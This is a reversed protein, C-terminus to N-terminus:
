QVTVTLQSSHTLSGSVATITLSYTGATAPVTTGTTGGGGTGGSGSSGSGPASVTNSGCGSATLAGVSLLVLFLAGWRRRRPLSFMLMAALATGSGAVYWPSTRPAQPAHANSATTTQSAKITLVTTTSNGSTLTVPSVTFSPTATMGDHNAISFSVTGSFNNLSQLTLTIGSTTGGSAVSLTNSCMSPAATLSFDPSTTSVFDVSYLPGNAYDYTNTAPGLLTGKSGAYTADGSYSAGITHGGSSIATAGSVSNLALNSIIGNAPLTIPSGFPKNDILIQVTGTPAKTSTSSGSAVTINLAVAGSSVGCLTSSSTVSTTSIVASAAGAISSTPVAVSWNNVMNAADISGLGTALDYGAGANYGIAGGSPCDLTGQVCYVSNNGATIDHYVNAINALGYLVPGVNGLGASGTNLKQEVRALIGAFIPAVVSTGGFANPQGSSTLFGNSCPLDTNSSGSTCVIYGDHNAAANMAFDPVDRSGDAPVGNGTQWAPKAFFGSVGGGGSGGADLGQTATTENWAQEPIYQLASGGNSQNSSNWYNSSSSSDGNFMTGGAATFYPSSSPFDANLGETALNGGSDCDTAGDDGTAAVLTMGQVNAQQFWANYSALTSPGLASECLGYSITVIPALKQDITYVMSNFPGGSAANSAVYLISAGPASAGSWEIDLHAEDVDGASVGPDTSGPVLQQTLNIQPLGAATRFAAINTTSIDTQGMVAITVGSGNIPTSASNLPGFDYITYLDAPVLYHSTTGSVTQTYAPRISHPRPRYTNMGAVDGVIGAIESPVTPDVTNSMYQQGNYKLTHISTKFASQAQSVTGSFTVFTSSRATSTITFGQSTLWSKVKALDSSSLGFRAGFQEPTLWQHYSPSSPDLQATYLQDLDAQQEATRSFHLTLSSLRQDGAAAGLDASRKVRPSVTGQLPLRSGNGVTAAAIRNKVAAHSLAPFTASLLALPLTFRSILRSRM